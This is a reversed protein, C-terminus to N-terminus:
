KAVLPKKLKNTKTLQIPTLGDFKVHYEYWQKGNGLMEETVDEKHYREGKWVPALNEVNKGEVAVTSLVIENTMKKIKLNIFFGSCSITEWAKQNTHISYL